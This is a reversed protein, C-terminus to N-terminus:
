TMCNHLLHLKFTYSQEKKKACTDRVRSVHQVEILLKHVKTRGAQHGDLM